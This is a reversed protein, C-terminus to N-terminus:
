NTPRDTPGDDGEEREMADKAAEIVAAVLRLGQRVQVLRALRADDDVLPKPQM